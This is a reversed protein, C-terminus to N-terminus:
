FELAEKVTDAGVCIDDVYTQNVLADRILESDDCDTSALHSFSRVVYRVDCYEVRKRRTQWPAVFELIYAPVQPVWATNFSVLRYVKCIDVTFAHPHVRFRTLLDVIDQQLKPDFFM